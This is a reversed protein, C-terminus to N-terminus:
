DALGDRDHTTDEDLVVPASNIWGEVAPLGNLALLRQLGSVYEKCALAAPNNPDDLWSRPEM